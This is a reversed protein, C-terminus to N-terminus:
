SVQLIIEIAYIYLFMPARFIGKFVNLEDNIKRSNIQNFLQSM